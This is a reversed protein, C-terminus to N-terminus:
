QLVGGHFLRHLEIDLRETESFCQKGFPSILRAKSDNFCFSEWLYSEVKLEPWQHSDVRRAADVQKLFEALTMDM